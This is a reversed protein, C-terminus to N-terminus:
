GVRPALNLRIVSDVGCRSGARQSQRVVVADPEGDPRDTLATYGAERVLRSAESLPLGVVHPVPRGLDSRYLVFHALELVAELLWFM